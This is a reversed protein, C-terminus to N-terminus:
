SSMILEGPWRSVGGFDYLDTLGMDTLTKYAKGSRNGSRCYLIIPVDGAEAPLNEAIVDYPINVATPIHGSAFEEPTRVDILLYDIRGSDVLNKLAAPNTYETQITAPAPSDNKESLCSVPLFFISVLSLILIIRKKM